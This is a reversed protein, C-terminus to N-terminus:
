CIICEKKGVEKCFLQPEGSKNNNKPIAGFCTCVIPTTHHDCKWESKNGTPGSKRSEWHRELIIRPLGQAQALTFQLVYTVAAHHSSSLYQTVVYPPPRIPPTTRVNCKNRLESAVVPGDLGFLRGPAWDCVYWSRVASVIYMAPRGASGRSAPRWRMPQGNKTKLTKPVFTKLHGWVNDIM